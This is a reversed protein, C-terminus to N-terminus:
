STHVTSIMWQHHPITRRERRCGVAARAKLTPVTEATEQSWGGGNKVDYKGIYGGKLLQFPATIHNKFDFLTSGPARWSEFWAPTVFDSVLVSGIAYGFADDECADAVEYAYLTGATDGTQSFVTLNIYPDILMELLEHSVTVSWAVGYQVDSAIFAKGVPLGENSIDHYGLTGASDSNDLLTLWWHGSQPKGGTPVFHLKASVGWMPTFDRDLQIQLANVVQEAQADTIKTSANIIAINIDHSRQLPSPATTATLTVSM